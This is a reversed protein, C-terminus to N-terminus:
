PSIEILEVLAPDMKEITMIDSNRTSFITIDVIPFVRGWEM